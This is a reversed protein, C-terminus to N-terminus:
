YGPPRSHGETPPGTAAAPNARRRMPGRRHAGTPPTDPQRTRYGGTAVAFETALGSTTVHPVGEATRPAAQLITAAPTRGDDHGGRTAHGPGDHSPTWVAARIGDVPSDRHPPAGPDFM